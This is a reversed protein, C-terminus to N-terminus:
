KSSDYEFVGAEEEKANKSYCRNLWLGAYYISSARLPASFV